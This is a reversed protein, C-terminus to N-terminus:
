PPCRAPADRKGIRRPGTYRGSVSGDLTWAEGSSVFRVALLRLTTREGAAPLPGIKVFGGDSYWLQELPRKGDESGRSFTVSSANVVTSKEAAVTQTQGSLAGEIKRVDYRISLEVRRKGEHWEAEYVFTCQEGDDLLEVRIEGPADRLTLPQVTGDPATMTADVFGDAPEDSKRVCAALALAVLGFRGIRM